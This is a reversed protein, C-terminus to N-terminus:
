VRKQYEAWLRVFYGDGRRRKQRLAMNKLALLELPSLEKLRTEM